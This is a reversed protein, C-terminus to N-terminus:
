GPIGSISRTSLRNLAALLGMLLWFLPFVSYTVLGWAVLGHVLVAVFSGLIGITITELWPDNVHLTKWGVHFLVLLLALFIVLGPLGAESALALYLNHAKHIAGEQQWSLGVGYDPAREAFNDWGVGFVPYQRIMALAATDLNRRVILSNQESGSWRTLVLGSLPLILTGAVAALGLVFLLNTVKFWRNRLWLAVVAAMGALSGVWAGRTFTLVLAVMGMGLLALLSARTTRNVRRALVLSFTFPLLLDFWQSLATDTTLTGRARFLYGTAVEVERISGITEGVMDSLSGVNTKTAYQALAVSSQVALLFLLSALAWKVARSDSINNAVYLYILYLRLFYFAGSLSTSPNTGGVASVFLWGILALGLIELHSVRIRASKGIAARYIWVAYLCVLVIDFTYVVAGSPGLSKNLPFLLCLCLAPVLLDYGGALTLAAVVLLASLAVGIMAGLLPGLENAVWLSGLTLMAVISCILVIVAASRERSM